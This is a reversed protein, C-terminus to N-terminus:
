TKICGVTALTKTPLEYGNATIVNYFKSSAQISLTLQSVLGTCLSTGKEILLILTKSQNSYYFLWTIKTWPCYSIVITYIIVMSYHDHQSDTAVQWVIFVTTRFYYSTLFIKHIASFWLLKEWSFEKVCVLILFSNRKRIPPLSVTCACVELGTRM